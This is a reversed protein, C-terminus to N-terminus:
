AAAAAAEGVVVDGEVRAIFKLAAKWERRVVKVCERREELLVEPASGRERIPGRTRSRGRYAISAAGVAHVLM